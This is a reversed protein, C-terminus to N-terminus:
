EDNAEIVQLAARSYDGVRGYELWLDLNDPMWEREDACYREMLIMHLKHRFTQKREDSWKTRVRERVSYDDTPSTLFRPPRGALLEQGDRFYKGPPRMHPSSDGLPHATHTWGMVKEAIDADTVRDSATSM